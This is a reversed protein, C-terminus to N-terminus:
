NLAHQGLGAMDGGEQKGPFLPELPRRNVPLHRRLSLGKIEVGSYQPM